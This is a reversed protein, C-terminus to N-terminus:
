TDLRKACQARADLLQSVLAKRICHFTRRETGRPGCAGKRNLRCAIDLKQDRWIGVGIPQAVLPLQSGDALWICVIEVPVQLQVLASNVPRVHPVM